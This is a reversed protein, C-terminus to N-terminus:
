KRLIIVEGSDTAEGAVRLQAKSVRPQGESCNARTLDREVAVGIVVASGAALKIVKAQLDNCRAVYTM